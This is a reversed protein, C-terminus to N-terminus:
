RSTWTTRRALSWSSRPSLGRFGDVSQRSDACDAEVHTNNRKVRCCPLLQLWRRTLICCKRGRICKPENVTCHAPASVAASRTTASATTSPMSGFADPSVAIGSSGCSSDDDIGASMDVTAAGGVVHSSDAGSRVCCLCRTCCCEVCSFCVRSCGSDSDHVLNLDALEDQGVDDSCCGLCCIYATARRCPTLHKGASSPCCSACQSSVGAWWLRTCMNRRGCWM